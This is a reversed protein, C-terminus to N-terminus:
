TLAWGTSQLNAFSCELRGTLEVLTGSKGLYQDWCCFFNDEQLCAADAFHATCIYACYAFYVSDVIRCISKPTQMNNQMNQMNFKLPQMNNQMNHM